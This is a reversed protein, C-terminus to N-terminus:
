REKTTLFLTSADKLMERFRGLCEEPDRIWTLVRLRPETFFRRIEADDANALLFEIIPQPLKLLNMYQTVRAWSVGFVEV